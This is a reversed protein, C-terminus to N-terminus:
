TKGTSLNNSLELKNNTNNQSVKQQNLIKNPNKVKVNMSYAQKMLIYLLLIILVYRNKTM